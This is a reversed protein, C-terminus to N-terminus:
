LTITLPGNRFVENPLEFDSASLASYIATSVLGVLHMGNHVGALRCAAWDDCTVQLNGLDIKYAFEVLMARGNQDKVKVTMETDAEAACELTSTCLTITLINPM